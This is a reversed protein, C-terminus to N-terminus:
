AAPRARDCPFSPMCTAPRGAHHERGYQVFSAYGVEPTSWPVWTFRPTASTVDDSFKLRIGTGASSINRIWYWLRGGVHLMGAAKESEPGGGLAEVGAGTAADDWDHPDGTAVSTFSVGYGTSGSLRGFGMGLKQPM